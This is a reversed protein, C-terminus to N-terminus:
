ELLLMLYHAASWSFNYSELGEGTIPQYNERIASGKDLVGEANEILMKTALDAETNYGYNRLAKVAFYAQDLWVPGRWYGGDPKFKPHDACVTPFPVRTLFKSTNMMTKSAKEAQEKSAINAWLPIWGEPGMIKIFEEGNIDTDYFWGSENDWFQQQIKTKLKLADSEFKVQDKEFGLAIAIKNMYIKEAYLYANLDVSEQNLSFAQDSNKLIDSDDFRIANDMGSEWKAAILTGDTSGYECIGDKDHDREAYWWEHYKNLKPYMEALFAADGTEEYVKWIAWGSLPAKTNRYNNAEISTDRYVCDPIFGNSEQFDYMARIQNKALGSNFHVLAVAHKWSDWAWFGHFWKYHYSPFCGEFNLGEAASRWNNQLTLICKSVLNLYAENRWKLPIRSIVDNLQQNKENIRKKLLDNYNINSIESYLNDQFSFSQKTYIITSKGSKLEIQNLKLLYSTDCLIISDINAHPFSLYGTVNSKESHISITNNKSNLHIFKNIIKGSFVPNFILEKDTINKIKTQIIATGSSEFFLEQKIEIKDVSVIQELHSLYSNQVINKIESDLINKGQKDIIQLKSLCKSIWAGNEQTMLFPGSFGLVQSNTDPFSYSFWAGQDSFSFISRDYSSNPTGSFSITNGQNLINFQGKDSCSFIFIFSLLVFLRFIKM